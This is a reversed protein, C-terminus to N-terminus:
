KTELSAKAGGKKANILVNYSFNLREKIKLNYTERLTQMIFYPELKLLDLLKYWIQFM